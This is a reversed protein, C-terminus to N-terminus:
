WYETKIEARVGLIGYLRDNLYSKIELEYNETVIISDHITAMFMRPNIKSLEKTIVDLILFAELQQLFKSFLKKSKAIKEKQRKNRRKKGVRKPIELEKCYKFDDIFNNVANPYVRRLEKLRAAHNELSCYMYELVVIKCYSRLEKFHKKEKRALSSNYVSDIYGGKTNTSKISSKFEPTLQSGIYSYIDNECVLSKYAKFDAIVTDSLTISNMVTDFKDRVQKCRLGQKLFELSETKNELLLFFVGALLYPQSTKIDLSVLRQGNHALFKRLTAPLNTLNSHLRNDNTSRIYYWQNFRIRSISYSYQKKQDLSLSKCEEIYKFAAQWDAQISEGNLWKTLHKTTREAATKKQEIRAYQELSKSLFKEYTISLFEYDIYEEIEIKQNKEEFFCDKYGYSKSHEKDYPITKIYGYRALFEKYKRLEKQLYINLFKSPIRIYGNTTIDDKRIIKQHRIFDIMFVAKDMMVKNRDNKSFHLNFKNINSELDRFLSSELTIYTNKYRM